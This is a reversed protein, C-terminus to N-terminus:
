KNSASDQRKILSLVINILFLLRPAYELTRESIYYLNNIFGFQQQASQSLSGMSFAWITSFVLLLFAIIFHLQNFIANTPRKFYYMLWYIFGWILFGSANRSLKHLMTYTGKVLPSLTAQDYLLEEMLWAGLSALVLVVGVALFPRHPRTSIIGMWRSYTSKSPDSTTQYGDTIPEDQEPEPTDAPTEPSPEALKPEPAVIASASTKTPKVATNLTFRRLKLAMLGEDEITSIMVGLLRKAVGFTFDEMLQDETCDWNHGQYNKWIRKGSEDLSVGEYIPIEEELPAGYESVPIEHAVQKFRLKVGNKSLSYGHQNVVSHCVIAMIERDPFLAALQREKKFVRPTVFDFPLDEHCVILQGNFYGIYVAEDRPMMCSEFYAESDSTYNAFGLADLIASENHLNEAKEVIIFSAKWGM